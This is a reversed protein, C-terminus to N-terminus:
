GLFAFSVPVERAEPPLPEPLPVAENVSQSPILSPDNSADALVVGDSAPPQSGAIDELVPETAIPLTPTLARQLPPPLSCKAASDGQRKADVFVGGVGMAQSKLENILKNINAQKLGYYQYIYDHNGILGKHENDGRNENLYQKLGPDRRCLIEFGYAQQQRDSMKRLLDFAAQFDGILIYYEVFAFPPFLDGLTVARVQSPRYRFAQPASSPATPMEPRQRIRHPTFFPKAQVLAQSLPGPSRPPSGVVHVPSSAPPFGTPPITMIHM